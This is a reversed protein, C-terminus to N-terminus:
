QATKPQAPADELGVVEVEFVLTSMPEIRGPIGQTGYALDGPIYLVYKDGEQMMLLGERFGPIVGQPSFTAAEDGSQDFVTGDVLKGTYKVKVRDTATVKKGSGKTVVKYALGSPTTKIEPDAKKANEIYAKGAEVNKKVEPRAMDKETQFRDMETRVQEFLGQLLMQQQALSESSVSDSKLAEAFADYLKQRDLRINSRNEIQMIQGLFELGMNLGSLYGQDATDAFLTVKLGKLIADKNIKAREASDLNNISQGIQYGQMTGIAQSLSDGIGSQDGAATGAANENNCSAMAGVLMAAIGCGLFFKKM